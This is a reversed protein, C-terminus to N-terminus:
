KTHTSVKLETFTAMKLNYTKSQTGDPFCPTPLKNVENLMEQLNDSFGSAMLMGMTPQIGQVVLGDWYMRLQMLDQADAKRAKLEYIDYKGINDNRDVVDIRTATPWVSIENSVVDDQNVSKIREMWQKQLEKENLARANQTPPFKALQSFVLEWDPDAPNIGTKNTLTTLVARPLDPILLEGIFSNYSNHEIRNRGNKKFWINKMQATAITRKGIRINIGQTDRNGQYYYQCKEYVNKGLRVAKDRKADDLVGHIYKMHVRHGGIEVELNETKALMIPTQVPTVHVVDDGATAIIHASAEQTDEDMELYGCYVVGLHEVLWRRLTSVLKTHPNVPRQVTRAVLMPVRVYVVTSPNDWYLNLGKPLDVQSTERIVMDTNLPAEVYFYDGPQTHTYICWNQNGGSLCMLANKLGYGHENMRDTGMADSGIQLANELGMVDMGIGWDAVALHIYSDDDGQAMAVCIRGKEGDHMAALGDDVLECVAQHFLMGQSALGEFGKPKIGVKIPYENSSFKPVFKPNNIANM